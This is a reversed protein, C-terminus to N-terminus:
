DVNVRRVTEWEGQCMELLWESIVGYQREQSIRTNKQESM